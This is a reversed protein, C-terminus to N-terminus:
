NNNSNHFIISDPDVLGLENRAIERIGKVTGLSDIAGLLYSNRQELEAAQQKVLETREQLDWQTLRLTILAAASLVVAALVAIKTLTGARKLRFRIKPKQANAAM